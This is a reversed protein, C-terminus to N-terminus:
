FSLTNLLDEQLNQNALFEQMSLYFLTPPDSMPCGLVGCLKRCNEVFVLSMSHTRPIAFKGVDTFTGDNYTVSEFDPIIDLISWSNNPISYVYVYSYLDGKGKNGGVLVICDHALALSPNMIMSSPEPGNTPNVWLDLSSLDLITMGAIRSGGFIYLKDNYEVHSFGTRGSIQQSITIWTKTTLDYYKLDNPYKGNFGGWVIIRSKSHYVLPTSRPSPSSEMDILEINGSDLDITHFDSLYEKGNWGGFIYIKNGCLTGNAGARPSVRGVGVNIQTWSENNLDLSWMDNLYKGNSDIGYAIILTDKSKDYITLHGTRSCPTLGKSPSLTWVAGYSLGKRYNCIKSMQDENHLDEISVFPDAIISYPVSDCSLPTSSENGM